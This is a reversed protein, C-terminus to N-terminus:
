QGENPQENQNDPTAEGTGTNDEGSGGDSISNTQNDIVNDNNENETGANNTGTSEELTSEQEGANDNQEQVNDEEVGLKEEVIDTLRALLAAFEARTIASNPNFRGDPTGKVVGAEYLAIIYGMDEKSIMVGDKFVVTVPQVPQLGLAKALMVAVQARTAQVPSHFRNINIIQNALAKKAATKAWGPFQALVKGADGSLEENTLNDGYVEGAVTEALRVAVVMAEVSNIPAEPRFSGDEYGNLLGLAQAKVIDKRAWHAATDKFEKKVQEKLKDKIKQKILQQAERDLKDLNTGMLRHAKPLSEKKLEQKAQQLSEQKVQQQVQEKVNAREIKKM